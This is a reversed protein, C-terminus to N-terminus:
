MLTQFMQTATCCRTLKQKKKHRTKNNKSHNITTTKMITTMDRLICPLINESCFLLWVTVSTTYLMIWYFNREIALCNLTFSKSTVNKNEENEKIWTIRRKRKYRSTFLLICRSFFLSIYLSFIAFFIYLSEVQGATAM